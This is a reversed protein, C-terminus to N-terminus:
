SLFKGVICVDCDDCHTPKEQLLNSVGCKFCLIESILGDKRYNEYVRGDDFYDNYNTVCKDASNNIKGSLDSIIMEKTLLGPSIFVTITYFTFHLSYILYGLVRIFTGSNGELPLLFVILFMFFGVITSLCVYMPWHPGVVILPYGQKNFYFCNLNGLRRYILNTKVNSITKLYSFTCNEIHANINDSKFSNIEILELHRTNDTDKFSIDTIDTNINSDSSENSSYKIKNKAEM